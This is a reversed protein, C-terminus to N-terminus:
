RCATQEKQPGSQSMLDPLDAANAHSSPNLPKRPKSVPFLEGAGNQIRLECTNWENPMCRIERCDFECIAFEEPVEDVIQRKVFEWLRHGTSETKQGQPM